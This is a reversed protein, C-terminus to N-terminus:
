QHGVEQEKLNEPPELIGEDDALQHDDSPENTESGGAAADINNCTKGPSQQPASQQNTLPLTPSDVTGAGALQECHVASGDTSVAGGAGDAVTQVAPRNKKNKGQFLLKLGYNLWCVVSLTSNKIPIKSM